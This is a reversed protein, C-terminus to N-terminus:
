ELLSFFSLFIAHFFITWLPAVLERIWSRNYLLTKDHSLASLCLLLRMTRSLTSGYWVCMFRPTRHLIAARVGCEERPTCFRAFYYGRFFAFTTHPSVLSVFVAMIRARQQDFLITLWKACRLERSQAITSHPVLTCPKSFVTFPSRSTDQVNAFHATFISPFPDIAFAACLM